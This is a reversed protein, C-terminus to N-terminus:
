CEWTGREIRPGPSRSNQNLNKTMKRLGELRIGPYYRVILGRGSGVSDQGILRERIMRDDVSYLRTVSFADNFLSGVM